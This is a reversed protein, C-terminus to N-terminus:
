TPVRGQIIYGAWFRPHAFPHESRLLWEAYNEGSATRNWLQETLKEESLIKKWRRLSKQAYSCSQQYLGARYYFMAMNDLADLVVPHDKPFEEMAIRMARRIYEAAKKWNGKCWYLMRLRQYAMSLLAPDERM